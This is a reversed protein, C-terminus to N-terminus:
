RDHRDPRTVPEIIGCADRPGGACNAVLEDEGVLDCYLDPLTHIIFSSGADAGVGEDFISLRGESLTIRNTTTHMVGIGNRVEINVLDGMHFPHNFHPTDPANPNGSYLDIAGPDHHGKAASCPQCAAAEHIHVAHKGDSLGKVFMSVEVEKIGEETFREKLTARGQIASDTCGAIEATAKEVGKNFLRKADADSHGFGVMALCAVFGGFLCSSKM